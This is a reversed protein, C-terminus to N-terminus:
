STDNPLGKEPWNMLPPAPVNFQVVIVARLMCMQTDKFQDLGTM